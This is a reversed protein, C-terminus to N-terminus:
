VLFFPPARDQFSVTVGNLPLIIQGPEELPVAFVDPDRPALKNGPHIALAPAYHVSLEVVEMKTLKSFHHLPHSKPLYKSGKALSSLGAVALVLLCAAARVPIRKSRNQRM